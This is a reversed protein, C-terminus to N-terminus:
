EEYIQEIIVLFSKKDPGSFPEPDVLIISFIRQSFPCIKFSTSYFSRDIAARDRNEELLEGIFNSLYGIGEKLTEQPAGSFFAAILSNNENMANMKEKEKYKKLLTERVWEMLLGRSKSGMSSMYDLWYPTPSSIEFLSIRTDSYGSSLFKELEKGSSSIELEKVNVTVKAGSVGELIPPPELTFQEFSNPREQGLAQQSHIVLCIITYILIDSFKM